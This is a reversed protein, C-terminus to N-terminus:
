TFLIAELSCEETRARLKLKRKNKEMFTRLENTRDLLRGRPLEGGGVLDDLNWLLGKGLRRTL